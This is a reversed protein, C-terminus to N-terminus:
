NASSFNRVTKKTEKQIKKVEDKTIINNQLFLDETQKLVSSHNKLFSYIKPQTFEPNDTENHGLRRYCVIDVIVDKHFTNRYELAIKIVKAAAVPDDGNVHFIPIEFGKAIDTAYRTSRAERPSTTFGIQNNQIIHVTGQISYGELNMLNLAEAVVGQGVFSADGHILVAMVKDKNGAINQRARVSGM